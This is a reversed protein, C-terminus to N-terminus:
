VADLAEPIREQLEYAVGASYYLRNVFDYTRKKDLIKRMSYKLASRLKYVTHGNKTYELIFNGTEQALALLKGADNRKTIQRAMSIDFSDVISLDMLFDYLEESWQNYVEYELYDYLNKRANDIASLEEAQRAEINKVSKPINKFEIGVIKLALPYGKAIERLHQSSKPLLTVGCKSFYSEEEKQSLTLESEGISIFNRRICFPKLWAPMSVRSIMILWVNMNGILEEVVARKKDCSKDYTLEHLNDTVVIRQEKSDKKSASLFKDDSVPYYEFNKRALFDMVFSTKGFGTAGYVYVTRKIAQAAKMLENAQVPRVYENDLSFDFSESM